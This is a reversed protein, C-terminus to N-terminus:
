RTPTLEIVDMMSEFSPEPLILRWRKDGIREVAGAMDRAADRGYDMAREEDGLTLTGLFIQRRENGPYILGTPRQVGNLKAFRLLAGESAIVCPAPPAARYAVSQSGKQGLKIVRCQYTGPPPASGEIAADPDLLVGERAISSHHGHRNANALAGVFATRWDHLRAKDQPTAVSRWDATQAPGSQAASTDRHACATLAYLLALPIARRRVAHDM